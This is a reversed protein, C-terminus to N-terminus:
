IHRPWGLEVEYYSAVVDYCECATRLLGARDVIELRGRSYRILGAKQLEGAAISVGPRTVGLIQSVREHTLLLTDGDSRDHAMLLWRALRQSVEHAGNCAATQAIQTHLANAFGVLGDRLGPSTELLRRIAAVDVRLLVCDGQAMLDCTTTDAGLAAHVGAVGERGVHGVELRGGQELPALMSVIGSEIFYVSRQAESASELVDGGSVTIPELRRRLADFDDEGLEALIRNRIESQRPSSM